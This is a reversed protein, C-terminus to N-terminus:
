GADAHQGHSPQNIADFRADYHSDARQGNADGKDNRALGVRESRHDGDVQENTDTDGRAGYQRAREDQGVPEGSPAPHPIALAPEVV